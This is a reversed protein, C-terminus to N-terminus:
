KYIKKDGTKEYYTNDNEEGWNRKISEIFDTLLGLAEFYTIGKIEGDYTVNNNKKSRKVELHIFASEKKDM